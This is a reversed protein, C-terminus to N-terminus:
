PKAAAKAPSASPLYSGTEVWHRLTLGAYFAFGLVALVYLVNFVLRLQAAQPSLEEDDDGAGDKEGAKDKAHAKHRRRRRSHRPEAKKEKDAAAEGTSDKAPKEEAKDGPEPKEAPKAEEKDEKVASPQAETEPGAVGKVGIAAAAEALASSAVAKRKKGVGIAAAAEALAPSAAAKAPKPEAAPPAAVAAPRAAPVDALEREPDYTMCANGITYTAGARLPESSIARKGELTGNTSNEDKIIHKGDVLTITCHHGSIGIIQPLSVLCEANRGITVPIAPEVPLRFKHKTNNAETIYIVAM